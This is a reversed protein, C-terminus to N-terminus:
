IPLEGGHCASTTLFKRRCAQAQVAFVQASFLWRMERQLMLFHAVSVYSIRHVPTHNQV